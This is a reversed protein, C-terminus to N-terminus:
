PVRRGVGFQNILEVLSRFASEVGTLLMLDPERQYQEFVGQLRDSAQSLSQEVGSAFAKSQALGVRFLLDVKALETLGPSDVIQRIGHDISARQISSDLRVALQCVSLGLVHPNERNQAVRDIFFNACNFEGHRALSAVINPIRADLLAKKQDEHGCLNDYIRLSDICRDPLDLNAFIQIVDVVTNMVRVAASEDLKSYVTDRAALCGRELILEALAVGRGVCESLMLALDKGTGLVALSSPGAPSEVSLREELSQALKAVYEAGNPVSSLQRVLSLYCRFPDGRLPVYASLCDLAQDGRGSAFLAIILGNFDRLSEPTAYSHSDITRLSAAIIASPDFDRVQSTRYLAIRVAEHALAEECIKGDRMRGSCYGDQEAREKILDLLESYSQWQGALAIGARTRHHELGLSKQCSERCPFDIASDLVARHAELDPSIGYVDLSNISSAFAEPAFRAACNLLRNSILIEGNSHPSTSGSGHCSECLSHLQAFARALRNVYLPAVGLAALDAQIPTMDFDISRIPQELSGVAVGSVAVRSELM